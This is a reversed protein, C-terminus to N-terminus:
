FFYVMGNVNQVILECGSGRSKSEVGDGKETAGSCIYM